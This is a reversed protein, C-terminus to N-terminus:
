QSRSFSVGLADDRLGPEDASVRAGDADAYGVLVLKGGSLRRVTWTYTKELLRDGHVLLRVDTDYLAEVPTHRTLENLKLEALRKAAEQWNSGMLAAIGTKQSELEAIADAYEQPMPRDKFVSNQIYTALIETQELYNKSTSGPVIEKSVLAWATQPAESTYFDENQKWGAEDYLVKGKGEKAFREKLLDNLKKMSLTEDDPSKSIRLILMQGLERARELDEKSFPIAPVDRQELRVGLSKEVADPGLFDTGMIEAAQEISTKGQSEQRSEPRQGGMKLKLEEEPTLVQYEKFVTGKPVIIPQEFKSM